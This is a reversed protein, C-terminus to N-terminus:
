PQWPFQPLQFAQPLAWFMAVQAQWYLPYVIADDQVALSEFLKPLLTIIFAEPVQSEVDHEV